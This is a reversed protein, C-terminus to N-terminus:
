FISKFLQDIDLNTCEELGLEDFNKNGILVVEEISPLNKLNEYNEAKPVEQVEGFESNFDRATEDFGLSFEGYQEFEMNFMAM